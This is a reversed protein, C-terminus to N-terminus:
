FNTLIGLYSVSFRDKTYIQCCKYSISLAVALKTLLIKLIISQRFILLNWSSQFIDAVQLIICNTFAQFSFYCQIIFDALIDAFMWKNLTMLLFVQFLHSIHEFNIFFVGSRHLQHREPTKITLKSCMECRKRTNRNNVKFLYINGLIDGRAYYDM